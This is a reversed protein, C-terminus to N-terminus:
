GLTIPLHDPCFRTAPAEALTADGITRGCGQCKGYTGEDLLALAREIDELEREVTDLMTQDVEIDGDGLASPISDAGALVPGEASDGGLPSPTPAADGSWAHEHEV